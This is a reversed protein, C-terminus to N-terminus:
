IYRDKWGDVKTERGGEGMGKEWKRGQCNADIRVWECGNADMQTVKKKRARM